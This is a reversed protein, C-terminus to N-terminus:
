DELLRIDYQESLNKLDQISKITKFQKLEYLNYNIQILIKQTM